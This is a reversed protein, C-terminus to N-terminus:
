DFGDNTQRQLPLHTRKSFTSVGPQQFHNPLLNKKSSDPRLFQRIPSLNTKQLFTQPHSLRLSCNAVSPNAESTM